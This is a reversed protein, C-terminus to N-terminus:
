RDRTLPQVRRMLAAAAEIVLDRDYTLAFDFLRELRPGTEFRDKACLAAAFHPGLVVVTWEGYLPDDPDLAAGRVGPAPEVAM